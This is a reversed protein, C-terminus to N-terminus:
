DTHAKNSARLRAGELLDSAHKEIFSRTKQPTIGLVKAARSVWGYKSFNIDAEAARLAEIRVNTKETNKPLFTNLRTIGHKAALRKVRDYNAAGAMGVGDLAGKISRANCISELLEDDSVKFRGKGYRNNKKGCYTDTQSHCNPCLLRLNELRNDSNIGNVHELHLTISKGRWEVIHCQDCRELIGFEKIMRAKIHSRSKNGFDM